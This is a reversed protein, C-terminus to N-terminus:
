EGNEPLADIEEQVEAIFAGRELADIKDQPESREDFLRAFQRWVASARPEDRSGQDSVEIM